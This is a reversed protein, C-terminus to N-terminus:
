NVSRYLHLPSSATSAAARVARGPAVPAVVVLEAADVQEGGLLHELAHALHSAPMLKQRLRGSSKGPPVARFWRRWGGTSAGVSSM